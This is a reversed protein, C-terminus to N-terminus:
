DIRHCLRNKVDERPSAYTFDEGKYSVKGESPRRLGFLAEVLETQGSGAVGAVGVIEGSRVSFVSVKSKRFIKMM